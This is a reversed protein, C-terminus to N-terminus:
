LTEQFVRKGGQLPSMDPEQKKADLNDQHASTPSLICPMTFKRRELSSKLGFKREGVAGPPPLSSKGQCFSKSLSFSFIGTSLLSWSFPPALARM